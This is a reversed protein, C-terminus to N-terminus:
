ENKKLEKLERIEIMLASITCSNCLMNYIADQDIKGKALLGITKDCKNCFLIKLESM